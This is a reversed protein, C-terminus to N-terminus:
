PKGVCNRYVAHTERATRVWDFRRSQADGLARLRERLASDQAIRGIAGAMEEESRPDFFVAAEGAVEPLPGSRSCAVPVGLTMAELIPLGFGEYLSPFLLFQARTLLADREEDSVFGTAVVSGSRVGGDLADVTEQETPRHGIVVLRHTLRDRTRAIEFARLAAAINKNPRDVGCFLVGYPARISRRALAADAAKDDSAERRRTDAALYTVVVRDPPIRMHRVLERKAFESIAIVRSSRRASAPVLLRLTTRRLAPMQDGFAEYNLDPITVVRPCRSWLPAVYGLSHVIDLNHARLLRPFATQTYLHRQWRSRAEVPCVVRVMRECAPLPLEASERNLFVLYEHEDELAAFGQLLGRAYTETGGVVGPLLYLLDIGIRM